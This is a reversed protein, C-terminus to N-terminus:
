RHAPGEVQELLEGINHYDLGLRSGLARARVTFRKPHKKPSLANLGLRLCDNVVKGFPQGTRRAESKLREALDEDLTLTTRVDHHQTYPM